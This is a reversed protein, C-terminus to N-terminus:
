CNYYDNFPHFSAEQSFLHNKKVVRKNTKNMQKNNFNSSDRSEDRINWREHEYIMLYFYFFFVFLLYFFISLFGLIFFRTVIFKVLGWSDYLQVGRFKLELHLLIPRITAEARIRVRMYLLSKIQCDIEVNNMVVTSLVKDILFITVQHILGLFKHFKKFDFKIPFIVM